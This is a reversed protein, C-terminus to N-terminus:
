IVPPDDTTWIFGIQHNRSRWVGYFVSVNHVENVAYSSPSEVGVINRRGHRRM